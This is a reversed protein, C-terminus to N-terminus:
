ECQPEIHSDGSRSSGPEICYMPACQPDFCVGGCCDADTCCAGGIEQCTQGDDPCYGGAGVNGGGGSAGGHHCAATCIVGLAGVLVVYRNWM